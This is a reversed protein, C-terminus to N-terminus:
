NLSIMPASLSLPAGAQLSMTAQSQLSVVMGNITVGTNDIKVSNSGVSLTISQAATM